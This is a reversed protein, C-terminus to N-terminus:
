SVVEWHNDIKSRSESNEPVKVNILRKYELNYCGNLKQFIPIKIVYIEEMMSTRAMM